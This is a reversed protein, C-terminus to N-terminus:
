ASQVAEQVEAMASAIVEDKVGHKRLSEVFDSVVQNSELRALDTRLGQGIYARILPQYGSFGLLPAIRKLDDVVDEPMRLSIMTMPRDKRLRQKLKNIKMIWGFYLLTSSLRALLKLLSMISAFTKM